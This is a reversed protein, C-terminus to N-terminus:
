TAITKLESFFYEKDEKKAIKNGADKALELYKKLDSKKDGNLASARAMAEYAFALDFDGIDNELCIEICKQAHYLAANPRELISYVRSIQWDGRELNMPGTKPVGASVVESWHYRSAHATHIMKDNEEITRDQKDILDWTTNFLEKASKKHWEIKTFNEDNTM